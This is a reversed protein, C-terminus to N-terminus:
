QQTEIRWEGNSNSMQIYRIAYFNPRSFVKLHPSKFDPGLYAISVHDLYIDDSLILLRCDRIRLNIPRSQSTGKKVTITAIRHQPCKMHHKCEFPVSMKTVHQRKSIVLNGM